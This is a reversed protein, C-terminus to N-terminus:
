MSVKVYEENLFALVGLYYKFTVRQARPFLEFDPLDAASLARLINRCLGLSKLQLM